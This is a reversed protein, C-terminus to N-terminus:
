PLNLTEESTFHKVKSVVSKKKAYKMYIIFINLKFNALLVCKKKKNEQGKGVFIWDWFDCLEKWFM